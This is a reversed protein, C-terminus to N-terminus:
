KKITVKKYSSFSSYAKGDTVKKYTRVKFYYTKNKKLKKVTYSRKTGSYVCKYGSSKKTSVYLQYGSAGSVGNWSIYAKKGKLNEYSSIKPAKTATKGYLVSSAPSIYRVGSVSKFATVKYYYTKNAGRKTDTFTNTKLSNIIKVTSYKGNKSTARLVAYGTGSASKKWSIKITSATGGTQKIDTVKAPHIYFYKTISGTFNEKGTITVSARGTYKNNKYTLSYDTGNKLYKGNFKLTPSVTISKGTYTRDGIGTVAASKVSAPKINFSREIKGEYTGSGCIEVLATGVNKNGTFSVTYDLGEKLLKDGYLVTLEPSISAGTYTYSSGLGAINVSSEDFSLTEDSKWVFGYNSKTNKSFEPYTNPEITFENDSKKFGYIAFNGGYENSNLGYIKTARETSLNYSYVGTATNFYLHDSDGSLRSFSGVWYRNNGAPWRQDPLRLIEVPDNEYKGTDEFATLVGGDYGNDNVGSDIGYLVGDIAYFATNYNKWFADDFLNSDPDTDYDDAIHDTTSKLANTSLMFNDHNVRGTIDESPDDWTIDVHYYEGSIEIINWVHNLAKSSCLYNSIGLKNLMYRYATAYGQCVSIRNILTGYMNFSDQPIANLDGANYKKFNEYDYECLVAIRDHLILAKELDTYDSKSLDSLLFDVVANCQTMMRNYEDKDYAFELTLSSIKLTSTNFSCGFRKVNFLEPYKDIVAQCYQNFQPSSYETKGNNETKKVSLGLASIDTKVTYTRAAEVMASEFKQPVGAPAAFLAADYAIIQEGDRTLAIEGGNKSASPRYASERKTLPLVETSVSAEANETPLAFAKSPATGFVIFASLFLAVVRKKM